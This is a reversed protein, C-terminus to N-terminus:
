NFMSQIKKAFSELSDCNNASLCQRYSEDSNTEDLCSYHCYSPYGFCRAICDAYSEGNNTEDLCSYHCYSPHNVGVSESIFTTDRIDIHMGESSCGNSCFCKEVCHFYGYIDGSSSGLCQYFCADDGSNVEAADAVFSVDKSGLIVVDVDQEQDSPSEIGARLNTKKEVNQGECFIAKCQEADVIYQECFDDCVQGGAECAEVCSTLIQTISRSIWWQM